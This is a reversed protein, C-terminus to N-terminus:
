VEKRLDLENGWEAGLDMGLAKAAELIGRQAHDAPELCGSREHKDLPLGAAERINRLAYMLYGAAMQAEEPTIVIRNKLPDYKM